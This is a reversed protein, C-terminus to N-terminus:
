GVRVEDNRHDTAIRDLVGNIFAGSEETGFRKGIEVAENIVVNKPIDPCHFIEFVAMRLVNRDVGTMRDLKWNESYSAILNDIDERHEIVGFVREESFRVIDDSVRLDRWFASILLRPDEDNYDFQFLIQLAHERARHRNGM